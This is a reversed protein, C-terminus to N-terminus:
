KVQLRSVGYLERIATAYDQPVIRGKDVGELAQCWTQSLADWKRQVEKVMLSHILEFDAEALKRELDEMNDFYTIHPWQYFDSFQLWYYEAEGGVTNPSYSHTSRPHPKMLVDLEPTGCGHSISTRNAGFAHITRFFKPTPMFLPIGMAYYEVLKFSMMAYPFYVMARHSVLDSLEYRPYLKYLSVIKFKKIKSVLKETLNHEMHSLYLIEERTPKYPHNGTDLAAYSYLPLPYLGTYYYMYEQDYASTAGIVHRPNSMTNLMNIHEDLRDWEEKNCRGYNYRHAPLYVITKNFPMWLECYAAPYSCLFADTSAIVPNRKYYEFNSKIMDETLVTRPNSYQKITQSLNKYVSIGKQKFESPFPTRDGKIGGLTVTHGLSTLVIPTDVRPGDHLDSTWFSLNKTTSCTSAEKKQETFLSSVPYTPHHITGDVIEPFQFGIDILSQLWLQVLEVDHLELYQRQYLAIWLEETREVITQGTGRWELLFKILQKSKIYLDWESNLDGINSHVNRDQVVLPRAIFGLQLGVDWFLRETIYSRLIDSVRGAVTVPLFLGFFGARFHLTAQANYPTLSGKPIMLHKDEKPRNFFFPVPMTLRYIADVDPQYEALSQLVGISSAKIKVSHLKTNSCNPVKIDDLPLGRPWSPLTPAGLVPYPNYTPWNHDKPELVDILEKDNKPIAADLSPAGPPAAGPIWFKLLNDDDFDWILKAGHMIAYLYGVNKRGFHNWSLADVFKNRLADQDEPRLYVVADNGEGKTWGADYAEVSKKDFVVVLCWDRLKVQRRVSESVDFITTVVAWKECMTDSMERALSRKLKLGSFKRKKDPFQRVVDGSFTKGTAGSVLWKPQQNNESNRDGGDSSSPPQILSDQHREVTECVSCQPCEPCAVVPRSSVAGKSQANWPRSFNSGENRQESGGTIHVDKSPQRHTNSGRSKSNTFLLIALALAALLAFILLVVKRQAVM